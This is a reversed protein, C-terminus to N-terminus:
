AREPAAPRARTLRPAFAGVRARYAAYEPFAATLVEEEYRIRIRLLVGWAALVIAMQPTPRMLLMGVYQLIYGTYIPHRAFAYPGATVLRRAAPVIAFSSRLQVLPWVSWVAGFVWLVGGVSALAANSTPALWGPRWATAMAVFLPVMFGVVYALAQRGVPATRRAPERVLFLAAVVLEHLVTPLLMLGATGSRLLLQGALLLMGVFGAWDTWHRRRM